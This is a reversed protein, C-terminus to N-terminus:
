NPASTALITAPSEVRKCLIVIPLFTPFFALFGIYISQFMFVLIHQEDRNCILEIVGPSNEIVVPHDTHLDEFPELPTRSLLKPIEVLQHLGKFRSHPIVPDELFEAANHPIKGSLSSNRTGSAPLTSNTRLRSQNHRAPLRPSKSSTPAFQLTPRLQPAKLITELEAADNLLGSFRPGCHVPM